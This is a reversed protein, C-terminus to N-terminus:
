SQGAGTSDAARELFVGADNSTVSYPPQESILKEANRKLQGFQLSCVAEAHEIEELSMHAPFYMTLYGHELSVQM